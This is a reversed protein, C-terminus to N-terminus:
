LLYMIPYQKQFYFQNAVNEFFLFYKKASKYNHQVEIKINFVLM